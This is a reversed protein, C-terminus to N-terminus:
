LWLVRLPPFPRDRHLEPVAIRWRGEDLAAIAERATRFGPSCPATGVDTVPRLYWQGAQYGARFQFTFRPSYVRVHEDSSRDYVTLTGSPLKPEIHLRRVPTACVPHLTLMAMAGACNPYVRRRRHESQNRHQSGTTTEMTSRARSSIHISACRSGAAGRESRSRSDSSLITPRWGTHPTVALVTRLEHGGSFDLRECPQLV